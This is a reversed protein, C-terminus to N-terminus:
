RRFFRMILGLIAGLISCYLMIRLLTEYDLTALTHWGNKLAKRLQVLLSEQRMYLYACQKRLRENEGLLQSLVDDLNIPATDDM